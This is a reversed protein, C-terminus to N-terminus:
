RLMLATLATRYVRSCCLFPATQQFRLYTRRLTMRSQTSHVAHLPLSMGQESTGGCCRFFFPYAGLVRSRLRCLRRTASRPNQYRRRQFRAVWCM